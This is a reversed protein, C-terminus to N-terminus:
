HLRSTIALILHKTYCFLLMNIYFCLSLIISLRMLFARWIFPLQYSCIRFLM